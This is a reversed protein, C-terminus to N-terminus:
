DHELRVCNYQVSYSSIGELAVDGVNTSGDLSEVANEVVISDKVTESSTTADCVDLEDVFAPSEVVNEVVISDKETESVTTAACLDLEDVSATFVIKDSFRHALFINIKCDKKQIEVRLNGTQRDTSKVTGRTGQEAWIHYEDSPPGIIVGSKQLRCGAAVVVQDGVNFKDLLQLKRALDDSKEKVTLEKALGAQEERQRRAHYLEKDERVPCDCTDCWVFSSRISHSHGKHTEFAAVAMAEKDSEKRRAEHRKWDRRYQHRAAATDGYKELYPKLTDMVVATLSDADTVKEYWEMGTPRRQSIMGYIQGEKLPRIEYLRRGVDGVLCPRPLGDVRVREGSLLAVVVEISGQDRSSSAM